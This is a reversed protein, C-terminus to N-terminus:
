KPSKSVVSLAVRRKFSRRKLLFITLRRHKPLADLDVRELVERRVGVEEVLGDEAVHPEESADEAGDQAIVRGAIGHLPGGRYPLKSQGQATAM